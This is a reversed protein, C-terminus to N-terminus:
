KSPAAAKAPAGDRDPLAAVFSLDLNVNRTTRMAVGGKAIGDKWASITIRASSLNERRRKGDEPGSVCSFEDDSFGSHDRAVDLTWPLPGDPLKTELWAYWGLSGLHLTLTGPPSHVTDFRFSELTAGEIRPLRGGELSAVIELYARGPTGPPISEGAQADADVEITVTGPAKATLVGKPSITALSEAEVGWRVGVTLPQFPPKRGRHVLPRYVRLALTEGVALREVAGTSIELDFSPSAEVAGSALALAIASSARALGRV